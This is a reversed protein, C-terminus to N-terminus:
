SGVFSVLASVAQEAQYYRGVPEPNPSFGGGFLSISHIRIDSSPEILWPARAPKFLVGNEGYGINILCDRLEGVSNFENVSLVTVWFYIPVVASSTSKSITSEVDESTLAVITCAGHVEISKEIMEKPVPTARTAYIKQVGSKPPYIKRLSDQLSQVYDAM